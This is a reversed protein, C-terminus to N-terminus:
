LKRYNRWLAQQAPTGGNWGWSSDKTMIYAMKSICEAGLNETRKGVKVISIPNGSDNKALDIEIHADHAYETSASMYVGHHICYYDNKFDSWSIKMTARSICNLSLIIFLMIFISFIKRIKHM